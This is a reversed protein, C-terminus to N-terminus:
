EVLAVHADTFSELGDPSHGLLASQITADDPRVLRGMLRYASWAAEAVVQDSYVDRRSSHGSTTIIARLTDFLEPVLAYARMVYPSAAYVQNFGRSVDFSPQGLALPENELYIRFNNLGKSKGHFDHKHTVIHRQFDRVDRYTRQPKIKTDKKDPWGIVSVLEHFEEDAGLREALLPAEVAVRDWTLIDTHRTLEQLEPSQSIEFLRAREDHHKQEHM